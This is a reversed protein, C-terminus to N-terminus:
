PVNAASASNTRVLTTVYNSNPVDAKGVITRKVPPPQVPSPQTQALAVGGVMLVAVATIFKSKNAMIDHARDEISGRAPIVLRQDQM